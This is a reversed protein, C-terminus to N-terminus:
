GAKAPFFTYAEHISHIPYIRYAPGGGSWGDDYDGFTERYIFYTRPGQRLYGVIVIGHGSLRTLILRKLRRVLSKTIIGGSTGFRARLGAYVPGNAELAAVLMRNYKEPDARVQADPLYRFLKRFKLKPVDAYALRHVVGNLVQDRARYGGAGGAARSPETILRAFSEMDYPIRTGEVPDKYLRLLRYRKDTRARQFYTADLVRADYGREVRGHMWSRSQPLRRGAKLAHWDLITSASTSMCKFHGQRRAARYKWRPRPRYVKNVHAVWARTEQINKYPLRTLVFPLVFMEGDKLRTRGERLWARKLPIGQAAIWAPDTYAPLAPISAGAAPRDPAQPPGVRTCGAALFLAPIVGITTVASM